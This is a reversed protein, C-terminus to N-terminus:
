GSWHSGDGTRQARALVAERSVRKPERALGLFCMLDIFCTTLNLKCGFESTAYDFPFTHHYNHFGEGSFDFGPSSEDICFLLTVSVTTSDQPSLLTAFYCPINYVQTIESDADSQRYELMHFSNLIFLSTLRFENTVQFAMSNGLALFIQLPLSAKYSRHSWLRHAGATIGLASFLLCGFFWIWTLARASPFLFLGYLAGLHLLSMLIVNRWVIVTPPKPGEKEKYTHDFVDEVTGPEPHWIPSKIERDPM